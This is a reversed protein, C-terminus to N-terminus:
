VNTVLVDIQLVKKKGFKNTQFLPLSLSLQYLDTPDCGMHKCYGPCPRVSALRHYSGEPRRNLLGDGRLCLPLISSQFGLQSELGPVRASLASVDCSPKVWQLLMESSLFTHYTNTSWISCSPNLCIPRSIRHGIQAVARTVLHPYAESSPTLATKQCQLNTFQAGDM